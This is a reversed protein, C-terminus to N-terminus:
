QPPGDIYVKGICDTYAYADPKNMLMVGGGGWKPAKDVNFKPLTTERKLEEVAKELKTLKDEISTLMVIINTYQSDYM